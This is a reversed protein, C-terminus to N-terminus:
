LTAEIECVGILAIAVNRTSVTMSKFTVATALATVKVGPWVPTALANVTDLVLLAVEFKLRPNM